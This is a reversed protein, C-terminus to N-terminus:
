EAQQDPKPTPAQQGSKQALMEKVHDPVVSDWYKQEGPKAVDPRGDYDDYLDPREQPTPIPM